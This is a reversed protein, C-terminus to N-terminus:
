HESFGLETLARHIDKKVGPDRLPIAAFFQAISADPRRSLTQDRWYRAREENGSVMNVASAITTVIYHAGPERAGTDTDRCAQEHEGLHLHALAKAQYM